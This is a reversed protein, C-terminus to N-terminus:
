EIFREHLNTEPIKCENKKGFLNYRYKSFIKYIINSLFLPTFSLIKGLYKPYGSLNVLILEIAKSRVYFKKDYFLVITDISSNQNKLFSKAYDSQLSSFYFKKNKDYKLIFRVTKDCFNCVGDFFIVDM